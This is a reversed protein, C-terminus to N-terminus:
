GLAPLPATFVNIEADCVQWQLSEDQVWGRLYWRFALYRTRITPCADGPLRITFPFDRPGTLTIRAALTVPKLRTARVAPSEVDRGYEAASVASPMAQGALAEVLQLSVLVRHARVPQHPSVRLEGRLTQGPRAHLADLRLALHCDGRYRVPDHRWFEWDHERYALPAGEIDQNLSRLSDLRIPAESRVSRGDGLVLEAQLRYDVRLVGRQGSPTVAWNQLVAERELPTGAPLTAPLSLSTAAGTVTVPPPTPRTAPGGVVYVGTVERRRYWIRAVLRASAARVSIDRRPAATV